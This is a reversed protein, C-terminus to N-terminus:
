PRDDRKVDDEIREVQKISDIIIFAIVGVYLLTVVLTLVLNECM